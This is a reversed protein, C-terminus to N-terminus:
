GDTAGGKSDGVTGLIKLLYPSGPTNVGNEEVLKGEADFQADFFIRIDWWYDGAPLNETDLHAFHVVCLSNDIPFIKRIVENKKRDKVTFLVKDNATFDAGRLRFTMEGTDGSYMEIRKCDKYIKM